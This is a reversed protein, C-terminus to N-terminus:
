PKSREGQAMSAHRRPASSFLMDQRTVSREPDGRYMSGMRQLM